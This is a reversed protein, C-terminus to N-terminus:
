WEKVTNLSTGDSERTTSIYCNVQALFEDSKVNNGGLFQLAKSHKIKFEDWLIDGIIEPAKSMKNTMLQNVLKELCRTKNKNSKDYIRSLYLITNVKSNERMFNFQEIAAKSTQETIKPHITRLRLLINRHYYALELDTGLGLLIQDQIRTIM